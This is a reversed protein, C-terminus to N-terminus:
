RGALARIRQNMDASGNQQARIGADISPTVGGFFEAAEAKAQAIVDKFNTVNGEDDYKLDDKILKFLGRLNRVQIQNRKDSVFAELQDKARYTRLETDKESMQSKLQEVTPEGDKEGSLEKAVDKRAQKQLQPLKQRIAETLAAKFEPSNTDIKVESKDPKDSAELPNAPPTDAGQPQDKPNKGQGDPSPSPDAAPPQNPNLPDDAMFTLLGTLETSGAPRRLLM